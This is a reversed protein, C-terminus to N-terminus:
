FKKDSYHSGNNEPRLMNITNYKINIINHLCIPLMEFVM